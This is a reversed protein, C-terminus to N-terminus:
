SGETIVDLVKAIIKIILIRQAVIILLFHTGYFGLNGIVDIIQQYTELAWTFKCLPTHESSISKCLYMNYTFGKM